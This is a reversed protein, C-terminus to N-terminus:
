SPARFQLEKVFAADATGRSDSSEAAPERGGAVSNFKSREVADHQQNLAAINGQTESTADSLSKLKQRLQWWDEVHSWLTVGGVQFSSPKVQNAASNSATHERAQHKALEEQIQTTQDGGARSLDEKANELEDQDIALQAKAVEMQGDNENPGNEPKGKAFAELSQIHEQDGQIM